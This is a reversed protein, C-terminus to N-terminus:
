GVSYLELRADKVGILALNVVARARLSDDAELYEPFPRNGFWRGSSYLQHSGCSVTPRVPGSNHAGSSTQSLQLSVLHTVDNNDDRSM